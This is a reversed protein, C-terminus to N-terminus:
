ARDYWQRIHPRTMFVMTVLPFVALIIGWVLQMFAPAAVAATPASTAAAFQRNMASYAITSGVTGVVIWALAIISYLFMMKRSWPADRLLGIAATLLFGSVIVWGASSIAQWLMLTDLNPMAAGGIQRAMRGFTRLFLAGAIGWLSGLLGLSAWVIGIIGIVSASQPRAAYAPTHYSIVPQGQPPQWYPNQQSM